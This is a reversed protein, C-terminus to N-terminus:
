TRWRRIWAPLEEVSVPPGWGVVGPAREDVRPGWSSSQSCRLCKFKFLFWGLAALPVWSSSALERFSSRPHIPKPTASHMGTATTLPDFRAAEPEQRPTLSRM